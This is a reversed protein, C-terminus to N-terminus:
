LIFNRPNTNGNLYTGWAAKTYVKGNEVWVALSKGLHYAKTAEDSVMKRLDVPIQNLTKAFM